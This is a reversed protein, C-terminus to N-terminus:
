FSCSVPEYHPSSIHRVIWYMQKIRPDMSFAQHWSRKPRLDSATPGGFAINLTFTFYWINQKVEFKHDLTCSSHWHLQITCISKSTNRIHGNSSTHQGNAKNNIDGINGKMLM